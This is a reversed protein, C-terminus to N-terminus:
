AAIGHQFTRREAKLEHNDNLAITAVLSWNTQAQRYVLSEDYLYLRKLIAEEIFRNASCGLSDSVMDIQDWIPLELRVSRVKTERRPAAAQPRGPRRPEAYAAARTREMWRETAADDQEATREIAERSRLQLEGGAMLERLTKPKTM